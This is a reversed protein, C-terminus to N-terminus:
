TNGDIRLCVRLIRRKAGIHDVGFWRALWRPKSPSPSHSADLTAGAVARARSGHADRSVSSDIRGVRTSTMTSDHSGAETPHPASGSEPVSECVVVAGVVVILVVHGSADFQASVVATAVVSPEPEALEDDVEGPVSSVMEPEPVDVPAVSEIPVNLGTVSLPGISALASPSEVANAAQLM